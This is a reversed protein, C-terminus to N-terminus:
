SRKPKRGARMPRPAQAGEPVKSVLDVIDVSLAEALRELLDITPNYDGTEIGSIATRDVNADVALNEQTIGQSSRIQRLNWAIRTRANM